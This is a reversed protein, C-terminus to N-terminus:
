ENTIADIDVLVEGPINMSKIRRAELDRLETNPLRDDILGRHLTDVANLIRAIRRLKDGTLEFLIMGNAIRDKLALNEETQPMFRIEHRNGDKMYAVGVDSYVIVDSFPILSLEPHLMQLARYERIETARRERNRDTQTPETKMRRAAQFEKTVALAVSSVQCVLFLPKSTNKQSASRQGILSGLLTPPKIEFHSKALVGQHEMQDFLEEPITVELISDGYLCADKIDESFWTPRFGESEITEAINKNTGHYAQSFAKTHTAKRISIAFDIRRQEQECFQTSDMSPYSNM